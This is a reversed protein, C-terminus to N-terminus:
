TKCKNAAATAKLNFEESKTRCTETNMLGDTVNALVDNEFQAFNMFRKIGSEGAVLKRVKCPPQVHHFYAAAANDINTRRNISFIQSTDGSNILPFQISDPLPPAPLLSANSNFYAASSFNPANSDCAVTFGDISEVKCPLSQIDKDVTVAPLENFM